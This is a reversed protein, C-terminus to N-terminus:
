SCSAYIICHRQPVEYTTALQDTKVNSYKTNGTTNSRSSFRESPKASQNPKEKTNKCLHANTVTIAALM